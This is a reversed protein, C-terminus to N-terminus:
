ETEEPLEYFGDHIIRVFGLKHLLDIRQYVYEGTVGLEDALYRRTCRGDTLLDLINEDITRLDVDSEDRDMMHRDPACRSMIASQHDVLM